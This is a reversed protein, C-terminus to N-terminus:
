SEASERPSDASDSQPAPRQDQFRIIDAIYREIAENNLRNMRIKNILMTILYYILCLLGGCSAAILANKVTTDYFAIVVFPILFVISYITYKKKLSDDDDIIAQKDFLYDDFQEETVGYSELDPFGPENRYDAIIKRIRHEMDDLINDMKEAKLNILQHRLYLLFNNIVFLIKGLVFFDRLKAGIKILVADFISNGSKMDYESLNEGLPNTSFIDLTALLAPAM